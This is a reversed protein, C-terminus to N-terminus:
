QPVLVTRYCNCNADLLQQQVYGTPAPNAQQIYTVPPPQTYIVQPPYYYTPPPAYYSRAVLGGVVAGALAPAVWNNNYGYNNYYVPGRYGHYGNNYWALAPSSITGLLCLTAIFKKM